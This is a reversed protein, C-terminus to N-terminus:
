SKGSPQELKEFDVFNGDDPVIFNKLEKEDPFRRLQIVSGDARAAHCIGDFMHGLKPLPKKSDFVLDVPKSWIAPDGAEFVLGTQSTGDPINGISYRPKHEVFITEKGTFTQYFTEGV